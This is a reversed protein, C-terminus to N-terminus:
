VAEVKTATDNRLILTLGELRDIQVKSQPALSQPGRAHWREGHAWVYGEGNEWELVSAEMGAMEEQGTAVRRRQAKWAYSLILVLFALSAIATAAIVTWSLQFESHDSDILIAAGIIFAIVGGLGVVGFTPTFAEVGMLTLGLLILALGAYDLPLQNLAYLGLLLSIAGIIGPGISGPNSFEFILGYIGILMLIFAINPNSLVGLFKTMMGPEVHEIVANETSLIRKGTKTEVERQNLLRLLEGLDSAVIEVVGQAAAERATLSVGERVAQEAWDANRNRLEALSRIHAVADNTAKATMADTNSKTGEKAPADKDKGSKDPTADEPSPMGPMGGGMTVPTAAGINTGPAMAAINTAYIIYTGASAAHGGAPAVYGVVPVESELIISIIERTSTVLGGPTNIKIVLAEAKREQALAAADGIQRATAPGIAGDITSVLVLPQKEAPRSEVAKSSAAFMAAGAMAFIVYIFHRLHLNV